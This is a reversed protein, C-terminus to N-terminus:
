ACRCSLACFWFRGGILDTMRPIVSLEFFLEVTEVRRGGRERMQITKFVVRRHWFREEGDVTEHM